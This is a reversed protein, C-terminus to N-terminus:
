QVRSAAVDIGNQHLVLETARGDAGTVFTVQAPVVTLFFSHENEPYIPIARQDQFKLLLGDGEHTIVFVANPAAQFRGVYNDLLKPDM